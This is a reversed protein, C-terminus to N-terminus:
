QIIKYIKGRCMERGKYDFIIVSSKDIVKKKLNVNKLELEVHDEVFEFKLLKVAGNELGTSIRYVALEFWNSVSHKTVSTTIIKYDATENKHQYLHFNEDVHIAWYDLPVVGAFAKLYNWAWILLGFTLVSFILIGMTINIPTRDPQPYQIVFFWFWFGVSTLFCAIRSIWVSMGIPVVIYRAGCNNCFYCPSMLSSGYKFSLPSTNSKFDECGCEECIIKMKM